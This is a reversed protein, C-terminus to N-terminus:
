AIVIGNVGAATSDIERKIGDVGALLMDVERMVGGIGSCMKVASPRDVTLFGDANVYVPDSMILAPRYGWNNPPYTVTGMIRGGYAPSYGLTGDVYAAYVRNTTYTEPSRTWCEKAVGNYLAIRRSASTFYALKAGDKPLDEDDSTTFGMEYGSLNFARVTLGNAGTQISGGKGGNKRYPIKVEKVAPQINTDLLNFFITNNYTNIDSSELINVDSSHWPACKYIDKILLWTGNCSADYMSSPLGQHVVIFEKAVGDVNLKVISGVALESLKTAM